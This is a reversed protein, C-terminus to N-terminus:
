GALTLKLRNDRAFQLARRVDEDSHVRVVGAVSTKNLCSADNIFGTSQELDLGSPVAPLQVTTAKDAPTATGTPSDTSGHPCSYDCAPEGEPPAVVDAVKKAVLTLVAVGVVISVAVKTKRSRIM